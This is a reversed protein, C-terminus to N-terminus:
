RKPITVFILALKRLSPKPMIKLSKVHKMALFTLLHSKAHLLPPLPAGTAPHARPAAHTVGVGGGATSPETM